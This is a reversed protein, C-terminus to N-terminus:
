YTTDSFINYLAPRSLGAPMSLLPIQAYGVKLTELGAKALAVTQDSVASGPYIANLRLALNTWLVEFYEPPLNIQQVLSVFQSIQQMTSLHLEYISAQPVPWPFVNALPFAADYFIYTPWSVLSKLAINNYDERSQLIQLPYDIYNPQSSVIQRFFAAELRPVWAINFQGGPGVTYSQAGTSVLATDILHWILWRKRNWVAVMANLASFADTNDQALPNQGVGIVGAAKLSFSVIDQPTVLPM